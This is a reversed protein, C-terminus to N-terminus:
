QGICVGKMSSGKICRGQSCDSDYSCSKGKTRWQPQSTLANDNANGSPRDSDNQLARQDSCVGDECTAGPNCDTHFVCAFAPTSTLCLITVVILSRMATEPVHDSLSGECQRM